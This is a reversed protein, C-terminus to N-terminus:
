LDFLTPQELEVGEIALLRRKADPGGAASFGGIKRDAALVRHCPVIPAFPNRALAQGVARASGPSGLQQAIDGYTVTQGAAISRAADYVRRHFEPVSTMDLEVDALDTPTGGLLSVVGDVASQISPPPVAEVADPFRELMRERTRSGEPLQCGIVIEDRWAIGCRGIATDFLAFETPM